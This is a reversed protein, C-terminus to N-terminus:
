ITIVDLVYRVAVGLSTNSWVVPYWLRALNVCVILRWMLNRWKCVPIFIHPECPNLTSTNIFCKAYYTRLTPEWHHQNKLGTKYGNLVRLGIKISLACGEKRSNDTNPDKVPGNCKNGIYYEVNWEVKGKWM